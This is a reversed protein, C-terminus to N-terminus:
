LWCKRKYNKPILATAGLDCLMHPVPVEAITGPVTLAEDPIEALTPVRAVNM